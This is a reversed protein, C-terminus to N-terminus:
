VKILGGAVRRRGRQKSHPLSTHIVPDGVTLSRNKKSIASRQIESVADYEVRKMVQAASVTIQTPRNFISINLVLNNKTDYKEVFGAFDTFPGDIIVVEDSVDVDLLIVNKETKQQVQEILKTYQKQSIPQQNLLAYAGPLEKIFDLVKSNIQQLGVLAYGPYFSRRKTVKKGNQITVYPETLMIIEFENKSIGYWERRQEVHMPLRTAQTSVRLFYWKKTAM